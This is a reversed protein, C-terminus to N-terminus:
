GGWLGSSSFSVRQQRRRVTPHGERGHQRLSVRAGVLHHHALQVPVRGRILDGLLVFFVVVVISNDIQVVQVLKALPFWSWSVERNAYVM